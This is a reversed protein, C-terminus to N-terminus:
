RRVEHWDPAGALAVFLAATSAARESWWEGIGVGEPMWLRHLGAWRNAEKALWGLTGTADQDLMARIMFRREGQRAGVGIERAGATLSARTLVVGSCAPTLAADLAVPLGPGLRPPDPAQRLALPLQAPPRAREAEAVLAEGLLEAWGQFPSAGLDTVAALFAPVWSALHEWLLTERAHDLGSRTGASHAGEIEDIGLAAYLGLLASLHDPEAPPVLGLARWFGAVRDGTEGGLMGDSNLYFSAYPHCQLVFVATHDEPLPRCPLGLAALIADHSPQPTECLSALARLLEFRGTLGDGTTLSLGVTM